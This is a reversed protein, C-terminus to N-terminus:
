PEGGLGERVPRGDPGLPLPRGDPGLPPPQGDPGFQLPRGDPGLPPPPPLLLEVNSDRDPLLQRREVRGDRFLFEITIPVSRTVALDTPTSGQRVGDVRVTAGPPRTSLHLTVTKPVGADRAPAPEPVASMEPEGATQQPARVIAEQRPPAPVQQPPAIAQQAVQAPAPLPQPLLKPEKRAEYRALREADAAKHAELDAKYRARVRVIGVTIGLVVTLLLALGLWPLRKEEPRVAQAQTPAGESAPRDRPTEAQVKQTGPGVPAPPPFSTTVAIEKSDVLALLLARLEAASQPRRDPMPSLLKSLVPKMQEPARLMPSGPLTESSRIQRTVPDGWGQLRTVLEGLIVGVAFLDSVVSHPAGKILEPAVYGPTGMVWGADTARSEKENLSKALGFDLIKILDRGPPDDLLMVNAPKLDRHLIGLKHAAELGDCMQVGIRAARGVPIPSEHDVVDALTKGKVLEMALFLRGDRAQGFDVVSVTTPQALQSALRAERLFRRVAMPDHAYRADILKIAVERNVSRQLARYVTGMGGQGLKGRIEFREDLVQGILDDQAARVEVLKWGCNPCLGDEPATTPEAGCSPCIRGLVAPQNAESM